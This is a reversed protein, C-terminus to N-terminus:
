WGCFHAIERGCRLARIRAPCTGGDGSDDQVVAEPCGLGEGQGASRHVHALGARLTRAERSARSSISWQQTNRLGLAVISLM